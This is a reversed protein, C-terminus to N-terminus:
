GTARGAKINSRQRTTYCVTWSRRRWYRLASSARWDVFSKNSTLILAAKSTAGRWCVSCCARRGGAVASGFLYGITAPGAGQSVILQQVIASWATELRAPGSSSAEDLELTLSGTAWRPPRPLDSPWIRKPPGIFSTKRGGRVFYHWPAQQVVKRDVVAPLFDRYTGPDQAVAYRSSNEAGKQKRGQWECTLAQTLM